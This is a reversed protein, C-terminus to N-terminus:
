GICLRQRLNASSPLSVIQEYSREAVPCTMRECPQLFPTMHMPRWLPRTQIGAQNTDELFRDREKLSSLRINNLWYNSRGYDPELLLEGDRESFFSQYHRTLDRKLSLREPLVELQACGLAANLNPLRYNFATEEHLFEYPHAQKATTSLSKLRRALTEDNTTIMGGGGTTVIKNGNFSFVSAKTHQGIRKGQFETGLAEAADEVVPLLFEDAVSQIANLNAPMGFVHMPMIAAVRLGTKRSRLVGKHDRETESTLYSKLQEPCLGLSDEASDLLIPSAGSQLIANCTAVFTLSQTIVADGHRVGMATLLLHLGLTGNGVAVAYDADVFDAMGSEFQDVYRGVSSVFTSDLTDLVYTRENGYFEPEHLPVIGEPIAARFHEIFETALNM